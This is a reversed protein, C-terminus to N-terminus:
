AARSPDAWLAWVVLGAVLFFVVVGVIIAVNVKTTRKAPNVVPRPDNKDFGMSRVDGRAIAGVRMPPPPEHRARTEPITGRYFM